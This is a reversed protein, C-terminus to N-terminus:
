DNYPFGRQNPDHIVVRKGDALMRHKRGMEKDNMENEWFDALYLNMDKRPTLSTEKIELARSCAQAIRSKKGAASQFLNQEEIRRRERAKREERETVRQAARNFILIASDIAPIFGPKFQNLFIDWGEKLIEDSFHALQMSWRDIQRQNIKDNLGYSDIFDSVWEKGVYAIREPSPKKGAM